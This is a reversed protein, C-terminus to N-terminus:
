KNVIKKEAIIKERIEKAAEISKRSVVAKKPGEKKEKNEM